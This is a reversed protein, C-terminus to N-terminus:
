FRLAKVFVGFAKSTIVSMKEFNLILLLAAINVGAGLVADPSLTPAPPEPSPTELDHVESLVKLNRVAATYADSAPDQCDLESLVRKMEDSIITENTM